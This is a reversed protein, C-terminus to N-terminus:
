HDDPNTLGPSNLVQNLTMQAAVDANGRGHREILVGSLLGGLTFAFGKLCQPCDGLEAEIRETAQDDFNILAIVFRWAREADYRTAGTSTMGSRPLAASM